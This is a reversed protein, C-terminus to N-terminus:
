FQVRVAEMVQEMLDFNLIDINDILANSAFENFYVKKPIYITQLLM